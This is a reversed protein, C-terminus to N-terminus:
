LPLSPPEKPMPEGRSVKSVVASMAVHLWSQGIQWCCLGVSLGQIAGNRPHDALEKAAPQNYQAAEMM